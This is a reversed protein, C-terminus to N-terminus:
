SKLFAIIQNNVDDQHLSHGLGETTILTSNSWNQHIKTAASYPAILDFKDHVLLGKKTFKAAYKSISFEDINFNFTKKFYSDLSLMVSSNLKLLSKYHGMIESLESPSGLSIIKQISESPKKYQSYMSTMGGLSHGIIYKPNYTEIIENACITYLPVNLIKGESYGHGPADFAIINYDEKVLFNILNRWRFVNSEWGHILLITDKTGKWHYMQLELNNVKITNSKANDLFEKQHELIKGKRPTCFLAFAKKAAKESSFYALSNFYSGYVLPIYKNIIKKM